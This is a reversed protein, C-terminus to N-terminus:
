LTKNNSDILTIKRAKLWVQIGQASKEWYTEGTKTTVEEPNSRDQFYQVSLMLRRSLWELPYLPAVPPPSAQVAQCYKDMTCQLLTALEYDGKENLLILIDILEIVMATLKSINAYLWLSNCMKTEKKLDWVDKGEGKHYTKEKRKKKRSINDNKDYTANAASVSGRSLLTHAIGEIGFSSATSNMSKNSSMSLNSLVSVTSAGSRSSTHSVSSAYSINSAGTQATLASYESKHDDIENSNNGGKLEEMLANDTSAVDQLRQAPNNWLTSLQQVYDVVTKCRKELVKILDKTATRISPGVDSQALDYRNHKM